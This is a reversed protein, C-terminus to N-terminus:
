GAAKERAPSQTEKGGFLQTMLAATSYSSVCYPVLYTLCVKWLPPLTGAALIDGQNILTLITGVVASVKLARRVTLPEALAGLFTVARFDSPPPPASM